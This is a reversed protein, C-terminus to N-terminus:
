RPNVRVNIKQIERVFFRIDKTRVRINKNKVKNARIEVDDGQQQKVKMVLHVLVAREKKTLRKLTNELVEPRRLGGAGGAIKAIVCAERWTVNLVNWKIETTRWRYCTQAM